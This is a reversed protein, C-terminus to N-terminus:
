RPLLLSSSALLAESMSSIRRSISMVSSREEGEGTAILDSNLGGGELDATARRSQGISTFVSSLM